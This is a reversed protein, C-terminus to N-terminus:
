IEPIQPSFRQELKANADDNGAMNASRWRPTEPNLEHVERLVATWLAVNALSSTPATVPASPPWSVDGPAVGTDLVIDAIEFLRQGARLPAAASAERSTMAVVTAGANRAVQAVEVPYPNIGSTSFVIVTDVPQIDAAEAVERGLGPEREAATATRAGYLPLVRPHWLPRVHALGGARFFTELVAALSHGAGAARVLGGNRGSAVIAEAVARVGDANRECVDTVLDALDRTVAM